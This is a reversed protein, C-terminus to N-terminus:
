PRKALEESTAPRKNDYSCAPGTTKQSSINRFLADDSEVRNFDPRFPSRQKMPTRSYRGWKSPTLDANALNLEQTKQSLPHHLKVESSANLHFLPLLLSLDIPRYCIRDTASHARIGIEERKNARRLVVPGTLKHRVSLEPCQKKLISNRLIALARNCQFRDRVWLEELPIVIFTAFLRLCFLRLCLIVRINVSINHILRTITVATHITATGASNNTHIRNPMTDLAIGSHPKTVVMRTNDMGVTKITERNLQLSRTSSRKTRDITPM